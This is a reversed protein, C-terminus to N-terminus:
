YLMAGCAAPPPPPTLNFFALVHAMVENRMSAPHITEFPFGFNVLYGLKQWNPLTISYQVGASLTDTYRLCAISGGRPAIVDPTLVSYGGDPAGGDFGFSLGNFIGDPAGYVTYVGGSSDQVYDARLYNHYFDVGNQKYDLDWGIEAGTVFLKGMNDLYASVLAQEATDFTHDITSEEGCLWILADYDEPFIDKNTLAENACTDYSIGYADVAQGHVASWAHSVGRNQSDWRDYGDVILVRPPSVNRRFGYVDGWDTPQSTTSLARIRFYWSKGPEIQTLTYSTDTGDLVDSGAVLTWTTMNDSMILQYGGVDGSSPSWKLLAGAGLPNACVVQLVPMQATSTSMNKLIWNEPDFEVTLVDMEGVDILFTQTQQDNFITFTKSNGNLDSVRIDVPMVFVNGSQLQTINVRLKKGEMGWSWSYQPRDAGYVWRNFFWDLSSGYVSEFETQLDPTLATSYAHKAYYQRVATFFNEDGLVHRLMHLVWAGKRYVLAGTFNDAEPNVLALTDNIGTTLWANVYDHYSNIGNYYEKFLAESYTAFGENLWLHDYHGCTVSDGFWQHSLEHINQRGRGGPATNGAGLSTCTQHEMGSSINHTATVYKESIFPYEGYLRAFLNMAEFTGTLADKETNFYEPYLYHGITMTTAGDQSTYTGSVHTYNTCCISVLYTVIPYTESYNWTQKGGGADVTSMLKGNSVVTYATPATIHLDMTAKDEPVDKCPWWNRAGYPQSFTFVIPIRSTGHTTRTYPAGFTSELAQPDPTGSYYVRVTFTDDKHLSAPFNVLLWDKSTDTSYTLDAGNEDTVHSIALQGNYINFDFVARDLGEVTVRATMSLVASPIRAASMDLEIALDYHLADYKDQDPHKAPQAFIGFDAFARFFHTEEYDELSFALLSKFDLTTAGSSTIELSNAGSSNLIGAPLQYLLGDARRLPIEEVRSGNLILELATKQRSGKLHLAYHFNTVDADKPVSFTVVARCGNESTKIIAGGAREGTAATDFLITRGELRIPAPKRTKDASVRCPAVACLIFFVGCLVFHSIRKM